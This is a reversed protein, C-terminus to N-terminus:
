GVTSDPTPEDILEMELKLATWAGKPKIRKITFQGNEYCFYFWKSHQQPVNWHISMIEQCDATEGPAPMQNVFRYRSHRGVSLYLTTEDGNTVLCGLVEENQKSCLDIVLNIAETYATDSLYGFVEKTLRAIDSYLGPWPTFLLKGKSIRVDYVRCKAIIHDRDYNDRYHRLRLELENLKDRSLDVATIIDKGPTFSRSFRGDILMYITKGSDLKETILEIQHTHVNRLIHGIAQDVVGEELHGFIDSENSSRQTAQVLEDMSMGSISLTKALEPHADFFRSRAIDIAAKSHLSLADIIELSTNGESLSERYFSGLGPKGSKVENYDIKSITDGAANMIYANNVLPFGRTLSAIARHVVIRPQDGSIVQIDVPEEVSVLRFGKGTEDMMKITM